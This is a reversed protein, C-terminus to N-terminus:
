KSEPPTETQTDHDITIGKTLLGALEAVLENRQVTMQVNANVDLQSKESWGLRTKTLWIAATDSGAVARQALSGVVEAMAKQRGYVMEDHYHQQITEASLRMLKCVDAQSYGALSMTTIAQSIKPDPHTGNSRKGPVSPLNATATAPAMKTRVRKPKAATETDM